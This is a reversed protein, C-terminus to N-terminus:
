RPDTLQLKGSSLSYIRKMRAALEFSHTVLVVALDHEQNLESLLQGLHIANEADLSGTPEDALLLRPQNILARVLAARQCEGVSLQGPRHHVQKALGVREILQYARETTEKRISKDKVPLAPLLVNELLTLQPLLHHLQFVFGIFQNRIKALRKDDMEDTHSGDLIVKGSSPRDLTGLMNLLTSKGSGSPGVIAISDKTEITLSVQNLIVNRIGSGPQEYYKSIDQLEALMKRLTYPLQIGTAFNSLIVMIYQM